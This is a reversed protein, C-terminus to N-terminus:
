KASLTRARIPHTTVKGAARVVLGVTGDFEIGGGSFQFPEINMLIAVERGDALRVRTVRGERDLPEVAPAAEAKEHVGFVWTASTNRPMDWRLVVSRTDFESKKGKGPGLVAVQRAPHGEGAASGFKPRPGALPQGDKDKYVNLDDHDIVALTVGPPYVFTLEGIVGQPSELTAGGKRVATGDVQFSHMRWVTPCVTEVNDRVVLLDPHVLLVQRDYGNRLAVPTSASLDLRPNFPMLCRANAYDFDATYEDDSIWPAAFKCPLTWNTVGVVEIETHGPPEQKYKNWYTGGPPAGWAADGFFHVNRGWFWLSGKDMHHHGWSQGARLVLYSERGQADAARMVSGYGQLYRSGLDPREPKVEVGQPLAAKKEDLLWAMHRATKQIEASKSMAFEPLVEQFQQVFGDVGLGHDGIPPPIRRDGFAPDRPSHALCWFEFLRAFRPDDFFNRLGAARLNKALPALNKMTHGCYGHSEEWCGSEPYVYRALAMDMQEQGHALIAKGEPHNMAALAAGVAAVSNYRDANFNMNEMGQYFPNLAEPDTWPLMARRGPYASEDMCMYAAMAPGVMRENLAGTEQLRAASIADPNAKAWELLKKGGSAYGGRMSGNSGNFHQLGARGSTGKLVNGVDGGFGLAGKPATDQLAVPSGDANWVLPLRAIRDLPWVGEQVHAKALFTDDAAPVAFLAWERHGDVLFAELAVRDRAGQLGVVGRTMRDGPVEPRAYLDVHNVKARTWRDPRLYFAGVATGGEAARIALTEQKGVFYNFQSWVVMRALCKQGPLEIFDGCPNEETLPKWRVLKADGPLLFESAAFDDLNFVFKADGGLRFDEALRVYPKGAFLRVDAAYTKGDEFEYLIKSELYVPGQRVGCTLKKLRLMTELYGSGLWTKGDRSLGVVPGPFGFGRAPPDYPVTHPQPGTIRDTLVKCWLRGNTFLATGGDAKEQIIKLAGAAARPAPKDGVTVTFLQQGPTDFDVLTWVRAKKVAEPAGEVIEVQCPAGDPKLGIAAEAVPKEFTVDFSVPEQRYKMGFYENVAFTKV